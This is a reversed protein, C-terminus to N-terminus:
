LACSNEVNIPEHEFSFEPTHVGIVVVGADHYKSAWSQVYPLPRLSNICTYTWFNVLVVKGRLSKSSLPASNLRGIAGDLDPMAGEDNVFPQSAANATKVVSFRTLLSM